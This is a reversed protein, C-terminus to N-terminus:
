RTSSSRCRRPRRERVDLEDARAVEARVHLPDGQRVDAVRQLRHLVLHLDVGLTAPARGAPPGASSRGRGSPRGIAIQRRAVLHVTPRDVADRAGLDQHHPAARGPRVAASPQAGSRAVTSVLARRPVPPELRRPAPPSRRRRRGRRRAPGGRRPCWPRRRRASRDARHGADQGGLPRLPTLARSASPAWKSRRCRRREGEAPLGGVAAAADSWALAVGGARSITRAAPRRGHRRAGSTRPPPRPTRSRGAHSSPRTTPTRATWASPRRTSWRARRRPAPSRRGRAARDGCWWDPRPSPSPRACPPAPRRGARHIGLEHLEVWPARCRRAIGRRQQGLRQAALPRHQDVLWPSRKMGAVVRVGLERRAVHHGARDASCRHGPM